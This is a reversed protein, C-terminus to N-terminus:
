KSGHCSHIKVAVSKVIWPNTVHTTATIKGREGVDNSSRGSIEAIGYDMKFILERKIAVGINVIKKMPEKTKGLM